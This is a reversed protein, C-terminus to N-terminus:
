FPEFGSCFLHDPHAVIALSALRASTWRSSRTSLDYDLAFAGTATDYTFVRTHTMAQGALRGAGDLALRWRTPSELALSGIKASAPIGAAAGDLERVLTDGAVRVVDVPRLLVDRILFTRDFVLRLGFRNDLASIRIGSPIGAARADFVRSFAGAHHAIVDGPRFVTGALTVTRNVAFWTEGAPGIDLATVRVGDPLAPIADGPLYRAGDDLLDRHRGAHIGDISAHTAPMLSWLPRDPCTGPAASATASAAILVIVAAAGIVRLSRAPDINRKM